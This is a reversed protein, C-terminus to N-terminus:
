DRPSPSTYLLCDYTTAVQDKPVITEVTTRDNGAETPQASQRVITGKAATPKSLPTGNETNLVKVAGAAMSEDYATAVQDKPVITEVTTRDNGAETPQASQRVITGKTDAPQTLPTGNETHLIKTADAAKSRDYATAVQDKPTITEQATRERGLETPTADVTIIHGKTAAGPPIVPNYTHIIKQKTYAACDENITIIKDGKSLQQYLIWLLGAPGSAVLPNANGPKYFVDGVYWTGTRAWRTGTMPDTIPAQAKLYAICGNLDDQGVMWYRVLVDEGLGQHETLDSLQAKNEALLEAISVAEM